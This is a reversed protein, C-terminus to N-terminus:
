EAIVVAQTSIVAPPRKGSTGQRVNGRRLRAHLRAGSLAIARM